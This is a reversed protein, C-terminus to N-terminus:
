LKFSRRRIYSGKNRLLFMIFVFVGVFFIAYLAFWKGVHASRVQEFADSYDEKAGSQKFYSLAEDFQEEEVLYRGISIYAKEHGSNQRLVDRWIPESNKYDGKLFLRTASLLKKGYDTPSFKSLRKTSQDFVFIEDGVSEIAVATRFVGDQVGSGGFITVEDGNEDYLFIKGKKTDLAAFIGEGMPTIDIFKNAGYMNDSDGFAKGEM